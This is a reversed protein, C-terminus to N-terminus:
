ENEEGFLKEYKEDLKQLMNYIYDENNHGAEDLHLLENFKNLGTNAYQEILDFARTRSDLERINDNEILEAALISFILSNFYPKKILQENKVIGETVQSKTKKEEEVGLAAAFMVVEIRETREDDENGKKGLGLINGKDIKGKIIDANLNRDISIRDKEAM